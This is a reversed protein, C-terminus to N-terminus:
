LIRDAAPMRHQERDPGPAEKHDDGARGLAYAGRAASATYQGAARAAGAGPHGRAPPDDGILVFLYERWDDRGLIADWHRLMDGLRACAERGYLIVATAHSPVFQM